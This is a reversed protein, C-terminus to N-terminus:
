QFRLRGWPSHTPSSPFWPFRPLSPPFRSIPGNQSFIDEAEPDPHDASLRFTREGKARWLEERGLSCIPHRTDGPSRPLSPRGRPPVRYRM